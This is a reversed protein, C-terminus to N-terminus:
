RNLLFSRVVSIFHAPQEAHLWHGANKITVMQSLPFFQRIALIDEAQIYDSHDGKIFLVPFRTVAVAKELTSGIGLNICGLNSILAPINLLWRFSGDPTRELNKLLFQRIRKDKIGNAMLAEAQGYSTIGALNMQALTQLINQHFEQHGADLIPDNYSRPSIDAVILGTVRGPHDFAFQMATRGGMSHGLINASPIQLHDMLTLLDESMVDYDHIDSHFSHGHNRQDVLIVECVSSLGKAITLWNEGSGYLGHLIILPHGQGLKKFNLIVDPL